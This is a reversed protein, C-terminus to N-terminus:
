LKNLNKLLWAFREILWNELYEYQMYYTTAELMPNPNPWINKDLIQWTQFNIEADVMILHFANELDNLIDDKYFNIFEYFRNLYNQKFTPNKLLEILIVNTNAHFGEPTYEYYDGNGMSIDFDWLPGMKILEDPRKHLFVSSFNIDVNKTIEEIIFYEIFQEEDIYNTYTPESLHNFMEELYEKVYDSKIYAEDLDLKELKPRKILFNRENVRVYHIREILGDLRSDDELEILFGHEGIDSPIALRNKDIEVQETLLYLGNYQGNLYVNVYRTEIKYDLNTYTSMKHAIYNRLLSKDGHEALLVYNKASKMGFLSVRSDFKIRYPKKDYEKWTSNGRGRIELPLDNEEYRGNQNISLTGKIYEGYEIVDRNNTEIYINNIFDGKLLTLEKIYTESIGNKSIIVKIELTKDEDLYPVEILNNEIEINDIYYKLNYEEYNTPLTISKSLQNPIIKDILTQDEGLLSGCSTLFLILLISIFSYMKKM